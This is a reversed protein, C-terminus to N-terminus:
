PNGGFCNIHGSQLGTEFFARELATAQIPAHSAEPMFVRRRCKKIVDASTHM